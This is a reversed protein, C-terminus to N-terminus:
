AHSVEELYRVPKGNGAIGQRHCHRAGERNSGSLPNRCRDLAELLKEMTFGEDTAPKRGVTGRFAEEMSRRMEREMASAVREEMPISSKGDWARDPM